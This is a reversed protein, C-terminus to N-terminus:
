KSEKRTLGAEGTLPRDLRDLAQAPLIQIHRVLRGVKYGQRITRHKRARAPRIVEGPTRTKNPARASIQSDHHTGDEFLSGLVGQEAGVSQLLTSDNPAISSNGLTIYPKAATWNGRRGTARRASANVPPAHAHM